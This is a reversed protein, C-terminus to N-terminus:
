LNKEPMSTFQSLQVTLVEIQKIMIDDCSIACELLEKTISNPLIGLTRIEGSFHKALLKAATLEFFEDLGIWTDKELCCSNQPLFFNPYRNQTQCGQELGKCTEKSTTKVVIYYGVSGDNLVVLIKKGMNIAMLFDLSITM